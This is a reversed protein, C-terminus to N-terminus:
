GVKCTSSCIIPKEQILAALSQRSQDWVTSLDSKHFKDLSVAAFLKVVSVNECFLAADRETYAEVRAILSLSVINSQEIVRKINFTPLIIDPWVRRKIYRAFDCDNAGFGLLRFRSARGAPSNRLLLKM